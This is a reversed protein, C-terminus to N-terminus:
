EHNGDHRVGHVRGLTQQEGVASCDAPADGEEAIKIWVSAAAEGCAGDPLSLTIRHTGPRLDKRVMQYGTGLLGELSSHWAVEDFACTGGDPSHGGGIFTVPDGARFVEGEQPSLFHAKRPKHPVAFPETQAVASRLGSSVIVQFRCQEGGPLTELNALYRTEILGAAVAQWIRGDDNSYRIMAHHLGSADGMTWEVRALDGDRTVRHLERLRIEPQREDVEITQLVEGRRVFVLGAVEESWPLVEHFDLYAGDPDQYPNHEHCRYSRLVEGNRGLLDLMVPRAPRNGDLSTVGTVPYSPLLEVRGDRHIRFNLLMVTATISITVPYDGTGNSLVLANMMKQYHYPSIWTATPLLVDASDSYTM